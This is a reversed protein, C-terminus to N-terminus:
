CILDLDGTLIQIILCKGAKEAVRLDECNALRPPVM